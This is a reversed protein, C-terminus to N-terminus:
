NQISNSYYVQVTNYPAIPFISPHYQHCQGVVIDCTYLVVFFEQSLSLLFVSTVNNNALTVLWLTMWTSGPAIAGVSGTVGVVFLHTYRVNTGFV